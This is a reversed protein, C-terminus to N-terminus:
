AYRRAGAMGTRTTSIAVLFVFLYISAPSGVGSSKVNLLSTQDSNRRL